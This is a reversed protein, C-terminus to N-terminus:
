LSQIEDWLKLAGHRLGWESVGFEEIGFYKLLTTLCASGTVLIDERGKEIDLMKLREDATVQAIKQNFACFNSLHGRYGCDDIRLAGSSKLAMVLTGGIGLARTPRESLNWSKELADLKSVDFFELLTNELKVFEVPNFARRGIGLREHARVAGVQFSEGMFSPKSISIQTSAGGIEIFVHQANPFMLEAASQAGAISIRAEEVGSLVKLPCKLTRKVIDHMVEPNQCDRVASTALVICHTELSVAKELFINAFEKLADGTADLASQALVKSKELDKGLRTVQSGKLVVNPVGHQNEAIVFKVSNSGIDVVARM